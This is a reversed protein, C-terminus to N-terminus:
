QSIECFKHLYRRQIGTRLWRVTFTEEENPALRLPSSEDGPLLLSRRTLRRTLARFISLCKERTIEM